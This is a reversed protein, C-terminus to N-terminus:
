ETAREGRKKEGSSTHSEEREASEWERRINHASPSLESDRSLPICPEGSKANPHFGGTCCTLVSHCHEPSRNTDVTRRPIQDSRVLHASDDQRLQGVTVVMGVGCDDGPNQTRLSSRPQSNRCRNRGGSPCSGSCPETRWWREDHGAQLTAVRERQAAQSLRPALVFM